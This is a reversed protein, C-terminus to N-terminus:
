GLGMTLLRNLIIASTFLLVLRKMIKEEFEPITAQPYPNKLITGFSSMIVYSSTAPYIVSLVVIVPLALLTNLISGFIIPLFMISYVYNRREKWSYKASIFNSFKKGVKFIVLILLVLGAIAIMMRVSSNLNMLEAVKGTDGTTSFPTMALYGFFNVLGLISLWLYFLYIATNKRKKSVVIGLVIGQLLSIVPGALASIIKANISIQQDDAQVYNHFITPNAGSLSYSLYHGFEHIFTTVIFASVFAMTSNILVNRLSKNM